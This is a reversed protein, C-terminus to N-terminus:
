PCSQDLDLRRDFLVVKGLNHNLARAGSNWAQKGRTIDITRRVNM